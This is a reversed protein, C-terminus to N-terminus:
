QIKREKHIETEPERFPEYKFGSWQLGLHGSFELMNLRVGHVMFSLGGLVINLSHGFFLVLAAMLGGAISHIGTGIALENFSGAVTLSAFGVAFLRLYSMLDSFTGIISLPLEILTALIGKIINKQFNGFVLALAIGGGLLAGVFSPLPRDVVLNGILLFISGVIGIWGVQGLLQPSPWLLVARYLHALTLQIFGILFCLWMMFPTNIESFSDIRPIVLSSLLPLKAIGAYGFYTGTLVGWVITTSSLIFLFRFPERPAAKGAKKRALFTLGLFLLGYGADGILLAFFISLFILLFANADTEAYGPFTGMFDFLPQIARIWGPNRILTPVEGPDDPDVALFGWGERAAASKVAPVADQPCYGQVFVFEEEQGLGALVRAFSLKGELTRGYALLGARKGALADWEAQIDKERSGLREIDRTVDELECDPVAEERLDLCDEPSAALLALRILGKTEELIIISRDPPILKLESRGAEYLHLTLGAEALTRVSRVSFNGWKAFWAQREEAERLGAQIQERERHLEALREVIPRGEEVTFGSDRAAKKEGAASPATWLLVKELRSQEAKLNELDELPLASVPKVHLVGLKRLQRLTEKRDDQAALITVKKMRVIM